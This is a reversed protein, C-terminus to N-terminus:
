ATVALAARMGAAVMRLHSAIERKGFHFGQDGVVIVNGSQKKAGRQRLEPVVHM